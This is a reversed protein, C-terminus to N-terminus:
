ETKEYVYIDEGEDNEGTPIFGFKTYIHVARENAKELTLYIRNTDYQRMMEEPKAPYDKSRDASWFRFAHKDKCWSLITEADNSCFPRLQMQYLNSKSISKM